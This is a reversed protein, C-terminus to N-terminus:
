EIDKIEKISIRKNELYGVKTSTPIYELKHTSMIVTIDKSLNIITNIINKETIFDLSSTPEDLLLIDPKFYLARALAIRQRQGTSLNCGNEGVSEHINNKLSFVYEFIEAKVLVNELNQYDIKEKPIGFAINEAITSDFLSYEQHLYSIKPSLKKKNRFFIIEGNQPKISGSLLNLLTSKGSGSEGMLLFLSPNKISFNIEEIGENKSHLYKLNRIELVNNSKLLTQNTSSIKKNKIYTNSKQLEKYLNSIIKSGYEISNIGYIVNSLAPQAKYAAYAFIGLLPLGNFNDFKYISIFLVAIALAIFVLMELIFKPSAVLTSYIANTNSFIRSYKKFRNIFYNEASYIKIDKISKLSEIATSFRGKNARESKYGELNLTRRSFLYFNIYFSIILFLSLLSAILNSYLLYSVIAILVLINTLMLIVPQFVIIIFQDVESLISKAIDASNSNLYLDSNIYGNMLRTSIYHRTDEIFEQTKLVVYLRIFTSIIMILIVILPVLLSLAIDNQIIVFDKDVIQILNEIYIKLNEKNNIILILPMISALSIVDFIAQLFVLSILQTVKKKDKKDIFSITKFFLKIFNLKFFGKKIM